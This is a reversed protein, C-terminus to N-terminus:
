SPRPAELQRRVEDRLDDIEFPKGLWGQAGIEVARAAPNEGATLVVIPALQAGYKERALRTFEWGDMVPMKMDLLIVGPMETELVQLAERGDRALLPTFGEIRLVLAVANRLDPDDDVLLVKAIAKEAM